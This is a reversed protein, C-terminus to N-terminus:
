RGRLMAHLSQPVRFAMVVHVLVFLVVASM